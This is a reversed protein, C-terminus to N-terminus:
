NFDSAASRGIMWALGLHGNIILAGDVDNIAYAVDDAVTLGRIPPLGERGRNIQRHHM